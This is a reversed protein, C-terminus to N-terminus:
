RIAISGKAWAAPRTLCTCTAVAGRAMEPLASLTEDLKPCTVRRGFNCVFGGNEWIKGSITEESIKRKYHRKKQFKIKM